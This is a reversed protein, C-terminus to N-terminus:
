DQKEIEHNMVPRPDNEGDYKVQSIYMGKDIVEGEKGGHTGNSTNVVRDGPQPDNKGM